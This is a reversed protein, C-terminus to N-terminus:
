EANISLIAFIPRWSGTIAVCLLPQYRTRRTEGDDETEKVRGPKGARELEDAKSPSFRFCFISRIKSKTDDTEGRARRHGSIRQRGRIFCSQSPEPSIYSKKKKNSSIKKQTSLQYFNQVVPRSSSHSCAPATKKTCFEFHRIVCLASTPCFNPRLKSSRAFNHLRGDFPAM